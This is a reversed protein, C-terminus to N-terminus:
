EDKIYQKYDIGLKTCIPKFIWSWSVPAFIVSNFLVKADTGYHYYFASTIISAIVLVIRKQWLTLNVEKYDDITRIIIYTLANVTVCFTFDFNNIISNIITEIYEM